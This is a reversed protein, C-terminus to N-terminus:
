DTQNGHNNREYKALEKRGQDTIWLQLMSDLHRPTRTIWGADYLKKAVKNGWSARQLDDSEAHLICNIDNATKGPNKKIATLVTFCRMTLEPTKRLRDANAHSSVPDQRRAQETFLDNHKRVIGEATHSNVIANLEKVSQSTDDIHETM